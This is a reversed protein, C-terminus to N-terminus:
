PDQKGHEVADITIGPLEGLRAMLTEVTSQRVSLIYSCEMGYDASLIPVQNEKLIREVISQTSYPFHIQVSQEIIRVVIRANKLAESAAAKYAAILGGTGLLTGGFYRVVVLLVDSVDYRCLQGYIPRGATGSPEGDDNMRFQDGRAGLRYAYCHHRASHHEKRIRQVHDKVEEESRVRFAFALFRSGKDSFFGESTEGITRYEDNM